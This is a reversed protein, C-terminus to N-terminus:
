YHNNNINSKIVKGLDTHNLLVSSNMEWLINNMINKHQSVIEWSNHFWIVIASTTMNIIGRPIVTDIRHSEKKFVTCRVLYGKGQNPM